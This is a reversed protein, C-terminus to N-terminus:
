EKDAALQYYAGGVAAFFALSTAMLLVLRLAIAGYSDNGFSHWANVVAAASICLGGLVYILLVPENLRRGTRHLLMYHLFGLRLVLFLTAIAWEPSKWMKSWSNSHAAELTIFLLVPLVILLYEALAFNVAQITTTRPM